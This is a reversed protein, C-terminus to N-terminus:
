ESQELWVRRAEAREIGHWLEVHKMKRADGGLLAEDHENTWVGPMDMPLAEARNRKHIKESTRGIRKLVEKTLASDMTTKELAFFVDDANYGLRVQSAVFEEIQPLTISTNAQSNDNTHFHNQKKSSSSRKFIKKRQPTLSGASNYNSPQTPPSTPVYFIVHEQRHNSSSPVLVELDPLPTDSALLAQTDLARRRPRFHPTPHSTGNRSRSRHLARAPRSSQSYRNISGQSSSPPLPVDLDPQLSDGQLMVQTDVTDSRPHSAHDQLLRRRSENDQEFSRYSDGPPPPMDLDVRIPDSHLIAQTDPHLPRRPTPFSHRNDSKESSFLQNLRRLNQSESNNSLADIQSRNSYVDSENPPLSNSRTPSMISSASDTHANYEYDRGSNLREYGTDGHVPSSQISGDRDNSFDSEALSDLDQLQGRTITENRLQFSPSLQSMADDPEGRIELSRETPPISYVNNESGESSENKDESQNDDPSHAMSMLDGDDDQSNDESDAATHNIAEDTEKPLPLEFDVPHDSFAHLAEPRNRANVRGPRKTARENEQENEDFADCEYVDIVDDQSVSNAAKEADSPGGSQDETILSFIEHRSREARRSSNAPKMPHDQAQLKSYHTRNSSTNNFVDQVQGRHQGLPSSEIHHENPAQDTGSPRAARSRLSPGAQVPSALTPSEEREANLHFKVPDQSRTPSTQTSKNSSRMQTAPKDNEFRVRKSPTDASGISIFGDKPSSRTPSTHRENPKSFQEDVGHLAPLQPDKDLNSEMLDDIKSLYPEIETEFFDRCEEGTHSSFTRAFVDWADKRQDMTVKVATRAEVMLYLIEEKTFKPRGSTGNSLSSLVGEVQSHDAGENQPNELSQRCSKCLDSERPQSVEGRQGAQARQDLESSESSRSCTSSNASQSRRSTSSRVQTSEPSKRKM